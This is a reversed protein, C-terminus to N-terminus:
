VANSKVLKRQVAWTFNKNLYYNNVTAFLIGGLNAVYSQAEIFFTDPMLQLLLNWVAIQIVFGYVSVIQFKFVGIFHSMFGSQSVEKFTWFNNVFYNFLVSLEFGIAVAFSPRLLTDREYQLGFLFTAMFQGFLNVVVGLSGVIAYKLFMLPLKYGFRIEFLAILYQFIVSGNLKTTGYNRNRFQYGVETVKADKSRALIELLIKFGKPDLQNAVKEFCEKRIGFFGSMPDKVSIRLILRAVVTAIKSMFHRIKSMSGYSGEGVLRSGVVIDNQKLQEVINPLISEDHQMDADMVIYYHGAASAMGTVVASSLGREEIRRILRIRSDKNAFDRVRHYTEDPSNDDVVLIEFEINANELVQTLRPILIQINQQENFTPLIVSLEINTKAPNFNKPYYERRFTMPTPNVRIM